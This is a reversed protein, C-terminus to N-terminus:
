NSSRMLLRSLSDQVRKEMQASIVDKNDKGAQSNACAARPLFSLAELTASLLLLLLLYALPLFPSFLLLFVSFIFLDAIAGLM